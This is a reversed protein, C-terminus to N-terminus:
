KFVVKVIVEEAVAKGGSVAPVWKPGERLLRFAERTFPEGPSSVTKLDTLTSDPQVTFSVVVEQRVAPLVGAPYSINLAAWGAYKEWGGVPMAPAQIVPAAAGAAPEAKDAQDKAAVAKKEDRTAQVEKTETAARDKKAAAMAQPIAEVVVVEALEEGAVVMSIVPEDEMVETVEDEAVIAYVEYADEPLAERANIGRVAPALPAHEGKEIPQAMAILATDNIVGGAAAPSISDGISMEEKASGKRALQSDGAPRERLMAILIGSAVLLIVVAAAAPLWLARPRRMRDEMRAKLERLDAEAEDRSLRGLGEGAEEGFEDGPIM